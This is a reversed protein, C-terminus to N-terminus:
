QPALGLTGAPLPLVASILIAGICVGVAQAVLLMVIQWPRLTM